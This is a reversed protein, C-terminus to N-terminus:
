AGPCRRSRDVPRAAGHHQLAVAGGPGVRQAAREAQQDLVRLIALEEARASSTHVRASRSSGRRSGPRAARRRGAPRDPARRRSGARPRAAGPQAVDGVEGADAAHREVPDRSSSGPRRRPTRRRTRRRPRADGVGAGSSSVSAGGRSRGAARRRQSCSAARRRRRVRRRAAVLDGAGLGEARGASSSRRARSRSRRAKAGSGSTAGGGSPARAPRVAAEVQARVARAARRVKPSVRRSRRWAGRPGGAGAAAARRRRPSSAPATRSWGASRAPASGPGRPPDLGEGEAGPQGPDGGREPPAVALRRQGPEAVATLSKSPPVRMPSDSAANRAVGVLAASARPATTTTKESPSSRPSGAGIIAATRRSARSARVAEDPDAREGGIRAVARDGAGHGADQGVEVRETSPPLRAARARRGARIASASRRGRPSAQRANLSAGCSRCRRRADGCRAAPRGARAAPGSPAACRRGRRASGGRSDSRPTGRRCRRCRRRSIRRRGSWSPSPGRGDVLDGPHLRGGVRVAPRVGDDAVGVQEVVVDALHEVRLGGERQHAAHAHLEVPVLVRLVAEGGRGVQHVVGVKRRLRAAEGVVAPGEVQLDEGRWIASAARAPRSLGSM